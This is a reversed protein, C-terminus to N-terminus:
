QECLLGRRRCAARARVGGRGTERLVGALAGKENQFEQLFRILKVKNAALIEAIDAPKEQLRRVVCVPTPPAPPTICALHPTASKIANPRPSYPPAPSRPPWALRGGGAGGEVQSRCCCVRSACARVHARVPNAVFVKLVHFAEFQINPQKARLMMM